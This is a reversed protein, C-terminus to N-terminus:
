APEARPSITVASCMAPNGASTMEIVCPVFQQVRIGCLTSCIRAFVSANKFTTRCPWGCVGIRTAEGIMRGSPSSVAFM